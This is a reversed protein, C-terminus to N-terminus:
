LQQVACLGVVLLLPLDLASGAGTEATYRASGTSSAASTTTAGSAVLPAVCPAVCEIVTVVNTTESIDTIGGGFYAFRGSSTAGYFELMFWNNFEAVTVADALTDDYAALSPEYGMTKAIVFPGLGVIQGRLPGAMNSLPIVGVPPVTLICKLIGATSITCVEADKSVGGSLITGGICVLKGVSTTTCKPLVRAVAMQSVPSVFATPAAAPLVSAAASLVGSVIGGVAVFYEAGATDHMRVVSARIRPSVDLVPGGVVVRRTTDVLDLTGSDTIFAALSVTEAGVASVPTSTLAAWHISANYPWMALAATDFFEIKRTNAIAITGGYTGVAASPNTSELRTTNVYVGGVYIDVIDTSSGGAFIAVDGWSAAIVSSRYSSLTTTSVRMQAAHVVRPCLAAILVCLVTHM